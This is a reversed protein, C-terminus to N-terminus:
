SELPFSSFINLYCNENQNGNRNEGNKNKKMQIKM